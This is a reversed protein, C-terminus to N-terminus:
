STGGDEITNQSEEKITVNKWANYTKNYLRVKGLTHKVKPFNIKLFTEVIRKYKIKISSHINEEDLVAKCIDELKLLTDVKYVINADLWKVFEDDIDYFAINYWMNGVRKVDENFFLKSIYSNADHIFQAKEVLTISQRGYYIRSITELSLKSDKSYRIRDRIWETISEQKTNSLSADHLTNIQIGDPTDIFECVSIDYAKYLEIALERQKDNTKGFFYV